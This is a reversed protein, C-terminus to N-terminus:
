VEGGFVDDLNYAQTAEEESYGKPYVVKDIRDEWSKFIGNSWDMEKAKEISLKSIDDRLKTSYYISDICRVYENIDVEARRINTNPESSFAAPKIFLGEMWETHASYNTAIVPTGCAMAELIPLGFGEGYTPLVKVDLVNYVRVLDRDTIGSGVRINPDFLIKSELGYTTQLDKLNWGCDKVAMHLYLIADPKENSRDIKNSGCIACTNAKHVYTRSEEDYTDVTVNDCQDCKVYNGSMFISFAKFTAPLNKRPQNRSVQGVLFVDEPKKCRLLEGKFKMVEEEPLQKFTNTDVGHYEFDTADVSPGGSSEIVRQGWEGYAIVKDMNNFTKEWTYPIPSGDIPTYGYWTFKSRHPSEAIHEVMWKDGLSIVLDPKFEEVIRNFTGGQAYKDNQLLRKHEDVATHHVRYSVSDVESHRHFWGIAEVDYKGTNVLHECITKSVRGFGTHIIPSDSVWLIKAKKM